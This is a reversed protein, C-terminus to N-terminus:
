SSVKLGCPKTFIIADEHAQGAAYAAVLEEPRRLLVGNPRLSSMQPSLYCSVFLFCTNVQVMKFRYLASCHLGQCRMPLCNKSSLSKFSGFSPTGLKTCRSLRQFCRQCQSLEAVNWSSGIFDMRRSSFGNFNNTITADM